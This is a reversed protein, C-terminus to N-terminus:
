PPRNGEADSLPLTRCRGVLNRVVMSTFRSGHPRGPHPASLMLAAISADVLERFDHV